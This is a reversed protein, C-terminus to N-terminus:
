AALVDPAVREAETRYAEFASDFWSRIAENETEILGRITGEDDAVEILVTGDAVMSLQPIARQSVFLEVRDSVLLERVLASVEPDAAVVDFAASTIVASLRQRGDTAGRLLAEIGEPVVIDCLGRVRESEDIVDITRRVPATPDVPTPRTVKSGALDWVEVGFESLPLWRGLTQLEEMAGVTEVLSGLESTLLSGLPTLAYEHGDREVLDRDQFDALIRSLTTRPIGTDEQLEPRTTPSAALALLADVRNQARTVFTVLALPSTM